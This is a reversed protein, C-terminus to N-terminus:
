QRAEVLHAAVGVTREAGLMQILILERQSATMGTHLADVGAFAGGLIKVKDGKAFARRKSPAPPLRILGTAPDMRAKLALIEAEAVRAPEDSGFRLLAAVGPTRGIRQWVIGEAIFVFLYNVFLPLVGSKTPVKPLLTTFGAAALHTAAFSEHRPETRACTWWM